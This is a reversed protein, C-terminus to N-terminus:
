PRVVKKAYFVPTGNEGDRTIDAEVHFVSKLVDSQLITWPDGQRCIHRDHLVILEDSYRAAHNIDHLVMLITIGEQRNLRAVLELIELQHSIDLYTTPEDLLLLEPRQAVSMAIWARQREGGSLSNIRRESYDTMGTTRLAWEVIATDEKTAGRWWKKHAFRGYQVLTRVTVDSMTENTQSLMGVKRAVLRTNMKFIDQGDLLIRGSSPKIGRSITRMLTTKGCGNPGIISYVKGRQISLDIDEIVAHERYGVSLKETQLIVDSM